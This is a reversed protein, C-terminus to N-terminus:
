RRPFRPRLTPVHRAIAEAMHDLPIIDDALGNEVVSRPM